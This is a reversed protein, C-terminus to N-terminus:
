IFTTADTVSDFTGLITTGGFINHMIYKNFMTADTHRNIPHCRFIGLTSMNIACKNADCILSCKIFVYYIIYKTNIGTSVNLVNPSRKKIDQTFFALPSVNPM